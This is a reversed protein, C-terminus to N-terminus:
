VIKQSVLVTTLDPYIFINHLNSNSITWSGGELRVWCAGFVQGRRAITLVKIQFAVSDEWTDSWVLAALWQHLTTWLTSISHWILLGYLKYWRYKGFKCLSGKPDSVTFLGEKKGNRVFFNMPGLIWHAIAFLTLRDTSM